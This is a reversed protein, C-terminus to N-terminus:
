ALRPRGRSGGYTVSNRGGEAEYVYERREVLNSRLGGAVRWV